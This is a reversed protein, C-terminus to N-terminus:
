YIIILRNLLLGWLGTGSIQKEFLEGKLDFSFYDLINGGIVVDNIAYLIHRTAEQTIVEVQMPHVKVMDLEKFSKPLNKEQINNLLFGLTGCNVGFFLNGEDFYKKMVDLM